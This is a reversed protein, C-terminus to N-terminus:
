LAYNSGFREPPVIHRSDRCLRRNSMSRARGLEPERRELVYRKPEVAL